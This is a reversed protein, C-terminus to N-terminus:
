GSSWWLQCRLEGWLMFSKEMQNRRKILFYLSTLCHSLTTAQLMVVVETVKHIHNLWEARWNGWTYLPFNKGLSIKCAGTLCIHTIALGTSLFSWPEQIQCYRKLMESISNDYIEHTCKHFRKKPFHINDEYPWLRHCNSLCRPMFYESLM